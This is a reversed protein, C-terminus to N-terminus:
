KTLFIKYVCTHKMQTYFRMNNNNNMNKYTKLMIITFNNRITLFNRVILKRFHCHSTHANLKEFTIRSKGSVAESIKSLSIYVSIIYEAYEHVFTKSMKKRLSVSFKHKQQYSLMVIYLETLIYQNVIYSIKHM